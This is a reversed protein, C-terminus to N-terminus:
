SCHDLRGNRTHTRYVSEDQPEGLGIKFNDITKNEKLGANRAIDGFLIERDPGLALITPIQNATKPQIDSTL